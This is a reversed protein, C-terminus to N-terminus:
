EGAGERRRKREAENTEVETDRRTGRGSIKNEKRKLGGLAEIGLYKVRRILSLKIQRTTFTYVFIAKL